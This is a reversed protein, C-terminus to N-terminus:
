VGDGDGDDGDGDDDDDNDDGLVNLVNAAEGIERLGWLVEQNRWFSREM